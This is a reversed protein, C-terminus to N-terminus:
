VIYPFYRKLAKIYPNIGQQQAAHCQSQDWLHPECLSTPLDEGGGETGDGPLDPYHQTRPVARFYVVDFYSNYWM